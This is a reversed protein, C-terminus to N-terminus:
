QGLDNAEEDDQPQQALVRPVLQEREDLFAALGDRRLELADLAGPGVRIRQAALVIFLQRADLGGPARADLLRRVLGAADRAFDAVLGALFGDVHADLGGLVDAHFHVLGVRGEPVLHDVGHEGGGLLQDALPEVVRLM